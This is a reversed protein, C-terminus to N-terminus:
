LKVLRYFLGLYENVYYSGSSTSDMYTVEDWMLLSDGDYTYDHTGLVLDGACDGPICDCWCACSDSEFAITNTSIDVQGKCDGHTFTPCNILFDLLFTDINEYPIGNVIKKHKYVLTGQYQGDMRCTNTPPFIPEAVSNPDSDICAILHLLVFALFFYFIRM